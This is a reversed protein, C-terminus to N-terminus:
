VKWSRRVASCIKETKFLVAFTLDCTVDFFETKNTSFGTMSNNEVPNKQWFDKDMHWAAATPSVSLITINYHHQEAKQDSNASSGTLLPKSATNLIISRYEM